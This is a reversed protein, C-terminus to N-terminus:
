DVHQQQGQMYMHQWVQQEEESLGEQMSVQQPVQQQLQPDEQQLYPEAQGLQELVYQQQREQEEQKTLETVYQSERMSRSARLQQLHQRKERRFFGCKYLVIALLLLVLLGILLAVSLLWWHGSLLGLAGKPPPIITVHSNVTTRNSSGAVSARSSVVMYRQETDTHITALVLRSSITVTASRGANLDTLNCTYLTCQILECDIAPVSRQQGRLQESPFTADRRRRLLEHQSSTNTQNQETMNRYDIDDEELSEGAEDEEGRGEDGETQQAELILNRANAPPGTCVVPGTTTIETIYLVPLLQRNFEHHLPWEVVLQEHLLPTPGLNLFTYTHAVPPGFATVSENKGETILSLVEEFTLSENTFARIQEPVSIGSIVLPHKVVPTITVTANNDTPDYDTTDSSVAFTIVPAYDPERTVAELLRLPMHDFYLTLEQLSISLTTALNCHLTVWLETTPAQSCKLSVGSSHSFKLLAPHEIVLTVQHARAEKVEVTMRIAHRGSGIVLKTNNVRLKLDSRSVCKDKDKCTLRAPATFDTNHLIPQISDEPLGPSRLYEVSLTAELHEALSPRDELLYVPLKAIVPDMMVHQLSYLKKLRTTNTEVFLARSFHYREDVTMSLEVEIAQSFVSSNYQLAIHLEFCTYVERNRFVQSVSLLMGEMCSDSGLPVVRPSFQIGGELRLVPASRFFVAQSAAVAGVLLDPCGNDDLDHGGSLSFGFRSGAAAGALLFQEGVLVQSPRTKIGDPSGNYVFVKGHGDDPAGVVLDPFGDKDLDGPCLLAMGFHGGEDGNALRHEGRVISEKLPGYYIFVLGADPLSRGTTRSALRGANSYPAGVALDDVGDADWDASALSYGYMSALQVGAAAVGDRAQVESVDDASVRYFRVVGTINNRANPASAALINSAGDLRGVTIAWFQMAYDDNQKKKTKISRALNRFQQGDDKWFATGQGNYAMPAGLFIREESQISAASFGAVGFGTGKMNNIYSRGRSDIFKKDTVPILTQPEPGLLVCGGRPLLGVLKSTRFKLPLRPACALINEATPSSSHLQEGLGMEARIEDDVEELVSATKRLAATATSHTSCNGSRNCFFIQGVVGDAGVSLPSGVVLSSYPPAARQWLAVSYGFSSNQPGKMTVTKNVNLNFCQVTCLWWLALAVVTGANVARMELSM